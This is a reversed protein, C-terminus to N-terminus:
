DSGQKKVVESFRLLQGAIWKSVISVDARFDIRVWIGQVVVLLCVDGGALWVLITFGVLVEVGLVSVLVALFSAAGGVCARNRVDKWLTSGRRRTGGKGEKAETLAEIIEQQM